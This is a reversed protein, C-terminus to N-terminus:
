FHHVRACRRSRIRARRPLAPHRCPRPPTPSSLSGVATLALVAVALSVLRNRLGGDQM